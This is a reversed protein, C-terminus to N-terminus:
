KLREVRYGIFKNARRYGERIEEEKSLTEGTHINLMLQDQEEYYREKLAEELQGQTAIGGKHLIHRVEFGYTILWRGVLAYRHCEVPNQRAGMLVIHYGKELGKKLREVGNLFDSDTRVQEFDAYGEPLYLSRNSRQAAFEKGMYVYKIGHEMLNAGIVNKDYQKNYKSYPTGRIDAVYEIGYVKIRSVFDEMTYNSHGITYIVWKM